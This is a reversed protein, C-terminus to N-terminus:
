PVAPTLLGPEPSQESGFGNNVERHGQWKSMEFSPDYCSRSRLIITSTETKLVTGPKGTCLSRECDSIQEFRLEGIESAFQTAYGLPAEPSGHVPYM